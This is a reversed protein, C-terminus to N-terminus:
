QSEFYVTSEARRSSEMRREDMSKVVRNVPRGEIGSPEIAPHPPLPLLWKPSTSPPGPLLLLPPVPLLPPPLPQPIVPQLLPLLPLPLPPVVVTHGEPRCHLTLQGFLPVVLMLPM